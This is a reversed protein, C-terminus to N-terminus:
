VRSERQGQDRLMVYPHRLWQHLITMLKISYKTLGDAWMLQTPIWHTNERTIYQQISRVSIITRKDDVNPNEAVISDYLSKCDTVQIMRLPSTIKFSPIRQLIESLMLNCFSSRGVSTDAASAEAALTSRCVRGSRSSKWDILCAHTAADTARADTLMILCGHQSAYNEANAWSSDAYTVVITSDDIATPNMVFGKDSTQRLHDVADYMATLDAYTAKSGKSHLSVTAAVDPRTQGAVWQLSGAVSRYEPFVSPDLNDSKKGTVRGSQFAKIFKEQKLDWVYFQREYDYRLHIEKGKFELPTETTLTTHSGWSFLSLLEKQNFHDSFTVLFDDVYVVAVAVLIESDFGKVKKYLYFLMKDLSHQTWGNDKLCKCVHLSWTRPASALGYINGQVLYLPAPFIKARISIEDRPPALYLPEERSEPVGQLFATKVDGAWLYWKAGDRNLKRNHGSIFLAYVLMEAQRTPTASERNLSFLDPDLCGLAVVRAKARLPGANKAKDRYAARSKLVRKRGKSTSMIKAATKADLAKVSNFKMWSKEEDQAAKIFAELYDGGRDVIVRWPLEKDLAKQQQRTLSPQPTTSTSMDDQSADSDESMGDGDYEASAQYAKFCTDCRYPMYIDTTGDFHRHNLTIGDDTITMPAQAATSHFEYHKPSHQQQIRVVTNATLNSHLQQATVHENALASHSTEAPQPQQETEQRQPLEATAELSRTRTDDALQEGPRKAPTLRSPASSAVATPTSAPQTLEEPTRPQQNGVNTTDDDSVEITEPPEAPAAAAHLDAPDPNWTEFGYAQRAQEKAIKVTNTGSQVWLSKGDPDLGLLRALKYGGRKKGSRTTWRWYAVTDGVSLIQQPSPQTKRLLARRFAGDVKMAAIQQQAESRLTDALQHMQQQTGGVTLSHDDSLLDLGGHRPIRGFAAIFPPRGTSWTCANKSFVTSAIALEMQEPGAVGQADIIREAIDRLTSNHREILGIRHHAEPPIFDTQTGTTDLYEEFEARFSGDPDLRAILPYGFPQAWIQVFKKLVEGPLRSELVAAQHLHTCEDIVGLVPYNRGTIDRIYVIDLQIADAFQRFGVDPVTAPPPKVPTRTRQCSSCVMDEVAMIIKQNRIGNMALLKKLEAAPPHGLNRHLRSVVTKTDNDYHKDPPFSIEKDNIDIAHQPNDERLPPDAQPQDQQAEHPSTAMGFWFVGINVPRHFRGKPFRLDGLDEAIVERTGDNYLLASGRHTHPVHTPFRHLAPQIALQVREVSHWPVLQRVQAWIPDSQPLVITRHTTRRFLKEAAEFIPQWKDLDEDVNFNNVAFTEFTNTPAYFRQPDRDFATDYLGKLIAQVLGPCYEQSLTTERGELPVCRQLDEPSLKAQLQDLILPCNGAFNHGKRIMDGKSNTAGYAGAHCTVMNSSQRALLRQMAPEKWIRSKEPNEIIWFRGEDDQQECWKVVDNLMPRVSERWAELEDPRHLYNVNDQLLTWPRCDIAQLLLLPRHRQIQFHVDNRTQKKSLDYGTNYDIPTLSKLGWITAHKSINAAGAFTELLDVKSLRQRPKRQVMLAKEVEHLHTAHRLRQLLGKKVANTVAFTQNPKFRFITRGTWCGPPQRRSGTKWNYRLVQSSGDM